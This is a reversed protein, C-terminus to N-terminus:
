NHQYHNIYFQRQDVPTLNTEKGALENSKKDISLFKLIMRKAATISDSNGVFGHLARLMSM